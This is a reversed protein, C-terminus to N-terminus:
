RSSSILSDYYKLISVFQIKDAQRIRIRNIHVFKKIDGSREGFLKLLGKKNKVRYFGDRTSLYNEPVYNYENRGERAYISSGHRIVYRSKGLFAIEYYGEKLNDRLCEPARLYRFILSDNEFYLNFGEVIDKNLAIQPFNYNITRSTDTYIVEDLYTDYQLTLNNYKRTKTYITATRRKDPYLLPKSVSRIYYSEYEKGNMIEKPTQVKESYSKRIFEIQRDTLTKMNLNSPGNVSSVNLLNGSQGPSVLTVPFFLLFLLFKMLSPNGRFKM